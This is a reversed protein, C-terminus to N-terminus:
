SRAPRRRLALALAGSAVLVLGIGGGLLQADRTGSGTPAAHGGSGAPVGTPVGGASVVVLTAQVGLNGGGCRGTVKYTAPTRAAPIQADVSFAGTADTSFPVAGVGAFDHSADHLFAPSIAFGSTNPECTGSVHVSGGAPVRGPSVQLSAPAAVAVGSTAGAVVLGGLLAALVRGMVVGAAM